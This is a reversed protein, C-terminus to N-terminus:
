IEERAIYLRSDRVEARVEIAIINAKIIFLSFLGFYTVPYKLGPEKVYM